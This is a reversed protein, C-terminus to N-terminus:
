LLRRIAQGPTLIEIGFRRPASEYDRVNFTVIADAGANVAAELVLEDGPDRLQPRWLFFIETPEVLDIVADLFLDVEPRFLEAAAAHEPRQCVSKYEICLAVTAALTVKGTRAREILAFSAGTNGRMAAVVVDTDLVIKVLGM